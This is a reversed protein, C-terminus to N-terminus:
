HISRRGGSGFTAPEFGTPRALAMNKQPRGRGPLVPVEVEEPLAAALGHAYAEDTLRVSVFEEGRVVIEAYVAKILSARTQPRANAWSAAFNRVYALASVPDVSAGHRTRGGAAAEEKLRRMGTILEREEIRGAAFAEGLQRRRRELQREDAAAPTQEVRSLSRLIADSTPEDLRIGAIQAEIPALWTQTDWIKKTVGDRCPQDAHLRRHKGSMVGSARITSGCSCRLLGRLLDPRDAIRPGGGRTRSALLGQVRSWLDDDVPPDARWPAEGREGKRQVWGNYLPNKLIDNVTRDNMEHARALEDISVDGKAYDVFLGTVREISDPDVELTRPRESTRRFGLPAFGGPDALRRYKAAYGERIRKGLRRSYAEAEVTERAWAEWEDEDSSLVREDCFLIAAGAAHLDHRANVATRLNRAFRSVYGVLLVDYDRGARAVMEQFQATSGVTRGSHAVQWEIATDVLDWRGLTRDQQERQAEPGYNDYQGRTSERIWRAARLGRLDDLARPLRPISPTAM